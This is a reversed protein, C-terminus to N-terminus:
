VAHVNQFSTLLHVQTVEQQASGVHGITDRLLPLGTFDPSQLHSLFEGMLRRTQAECWAAIAEQGATQALVAKSEVDAQLLQITDEVASRCLMHLM